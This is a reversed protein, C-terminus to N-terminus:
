LNQSLTNRESVQIKNCSQYSTAFCSTCGNFEPVGSPLPDSGCPVNEIKFKNGYNKIIKWHNYRDQGNGNKLLNLFNDTTFYCYYVYWPLKKAKKPYHRNYIKMWFIQSKIINCWKKCVLTLKLIEQPPIYSLIDCIVEEPLYINNFHLGNPSDDVFPSMFKFENVSVLKDNMNSILNEEYHSQSEPLKLVNGM